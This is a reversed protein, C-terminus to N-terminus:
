RDWGSERLQEGPSGLGVSVSREGKNGRGVDGLDVINCPELRRDLSHGVGEHGGEARRGDTSRGSAPLGDNDDVQGGVLVVHQGDPRSDAGAEDRTEEGIKGGLEVMTLSVDLM